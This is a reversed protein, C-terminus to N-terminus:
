KQGKKYTLMSPNKQLHENFVKLSNYQKKVESTKNKTKYSQLTRQVKRFSVKTASKGNRYFSPIYKDIKVILHNM